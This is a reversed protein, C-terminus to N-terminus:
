NAIKHLKRYSQDQNQSRGLILIICTEVCEKTLVGIEAKRHALSTGRDRIQCNAKQTVLDIKLAIRELTRETTLKSRRSCSRNVDWYYLFPCHTCSLTNVNRHYPQIKRISSTQEALNNQRYFGPVELFSSHFLSIHRCM